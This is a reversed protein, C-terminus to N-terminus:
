GFVHYVVFGLYPLLALGFLWSLTAVPERKQLIIWGGLLLLYAVWAGVLWAGLHPISLLGQWAERLADLRKGKGDCRSRCPQGLSAPHAVVAFCPERGQARQLPAPGARAHGAAELLAAGAALVVAPPGPVVEAVGGALGQLGARGGHDGRLARAADDAAVLRGVHAEALRHIRVPAALVAAHAAERPGAVGVEVEGRSQVELGPQEGLGVAHLEQAGFERLRAVAARRARRGRVGVGVLRQLPALADGAAQQLHQSRF